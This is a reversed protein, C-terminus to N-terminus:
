GHGVRGEFIENRPGPIDGHWSGTGPREHPWCREKGKQEDATKKRKFQQQKKEKKDGIYCIRSM